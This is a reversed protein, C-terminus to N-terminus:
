APPFVMPDAEKFASLLVRDRGAFDTPGPAFVIWGLFGLGAVVVIAVAALLIRLLARM